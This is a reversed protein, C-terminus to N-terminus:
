SQAVVGPERGCLAKKAIDRCRVGADGWEVQDDDQKAIRVLAEEYRAAMAAITPLHDLAALLQDPNM